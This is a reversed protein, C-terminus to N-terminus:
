QTRPSFARGRAGVKQALALRFDQPVEPEAGAPPAEPAATVM